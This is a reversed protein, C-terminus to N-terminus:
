NEGDRLESKEKLLQCAYVKVLGEIAVKVCGSDKEFGVFLSYNDLLLCVNETCLTGPFVDRFTLDDLKSFKLLLYKVSGFSKKKSHLM